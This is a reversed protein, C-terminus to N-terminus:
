EINVTEKIIYVPRNRVENYIRAIYEGLIWMFIFQLGMFWFILVSLWKYLPYDQWRFVADYFIYLFFLLSLIIVIIGILAGVKLPLTSFSLIGDMALKIMKKWTYSATGYKRDWRDFEVFTYRFGMRAIIGRLYIDKEQIQLFVKHVKKDILRFDGVNRPIYFQAIKSFIFYYLYTMWKKLLPDKRTRRKAYVVEYGEEWKSIMDLILKPDDQLDCDISVIADGGAQHLGCTLAAQHWFNRTLSIGKIFPDKKAISVIKEWTSDTSGDNVFIIEHDYKKKLVDVVKQLEQYLLLISEEENHAPIVISIKKRM